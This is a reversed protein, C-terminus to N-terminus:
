VFEIPFVPINLVSRISGNPVNEIKFKSNTESKPNRIEFKGKDKGQHGTGAFFEILKFALVERRVRL